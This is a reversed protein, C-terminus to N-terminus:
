DQHYNATALPSINSEIAFLTGTLSNALPKIWIEITFTRVDQLDVGTTTRISSPSEFKIGACGQYIPDTGIGRSTVKKDHNRNLKLNLSNKGFDTININYDSPTTSNDGKSM